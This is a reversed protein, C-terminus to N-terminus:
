ALIPAIDAIARHLEVGPPLSKLYQKGYGKEVLRVDCCIVVGRDTARRILRGFGQRFEIISRPLVYRPWWGNPDSERVAEVIPDDPRDFPLKDILVCSLSEGPIDVGAWMSSVGLLVSDTVERFERILQTRPRQGQVLIPYPLRAARLAAEASRLGDWSTFLALTRGRATRVAEVLVEGVDERFDAHSPPALKRPVVIAARGHHDFPSPVRLTAAVECGIEGTIFSFSGNGTTLTASTGIVSLDADDWLMSRLTEAISRPKMVLSPLAQSDPPPMEVFYVSETTALQEAEEARDAYENLSEGGRRMKDALIPNEEGCMVRFLEVAARRMEAAFEGAVVEGPLSVRPRKRDDALSRFFREASKLVQNQERPALYKVAKRVGFLSLTWGFFSRGIDAAEHCNHVVCGEAIYTHTGEVEFNYVVGGQCLGGFQGDSGPELIEICDVRAFHPVGDETRRGSENCASQSVDWGSRDCDDSRSERHRSQLPDTRRDNTECDDPGSSRMALRSCGVVAESSDDGGDWERWSDKAFPRDGEADEAAERGDCSREDSKCGAYASFTDGRSGPAHSESIAGREGIAQRAGELLVRARKTGSRGAAERYSHGAGWLGSLEDPCAEASVDEDAVRKPSGQLLVGPGIAAREGDSNVDGTSRSRVGRLADRYIDDTTESREPLAEADENGAVLVHDGINVSVIPSWGNPTMFPHNPTCIIKRGGITVRVLASPKSRYLRVVRRSVFTGSEEDYSQVVDGVRINEIPVSGIRTGAVFCEDLIVVDYPPLVGGAEARKLMLDIFFLHYNTVVVDANAAAKRASMGWCAEYHECKKGPCDESTSTVAAKLRTPLEVDLTSLDGDTTTQAWVRLSEGADEDRDWVGGMLLDAEVTEWGARCLYNGIGKAIAYRVPIGLAAELAPLDKTILQEQLAINATVVVTRKRKAGTTALIAPVLYAASKGTNHTVTFDGLLFRGDGDLSFGYYASVVGPREISFGTRLANMVQRRAPAIKRSFRCLIRDTHGSISVRWDTGGAGTQVYAALGLSRALFAVGDSLTRSKSVFDYGSGTSRGATDLLGSLMASRASWEATLYASPICKEDCEIPLTRGLFYPDIPLQDVAAEGDFAPVEERFLKYLHKQTKSWGLYERVSVDVLTGRDTRVLTLIHDLNVRWRDGKVPVVDVMEQRGRALALVRRREGYPAALYDGVQVDEVLKISGDAMLIPQGKAHCGTPAEVVLCEGSEIAANVALSMDIQGTRCQYGAGVQRAIPGDAAFIEAITM